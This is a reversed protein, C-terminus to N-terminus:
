DIDDICWGEDMDEPWDDCMEMWLDIGGQTTFHMAVLKCSPCEVGSFLHGGVAMYNERLKPEVGCDPCAPIPRM